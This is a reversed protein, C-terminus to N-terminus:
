RKKAAKPRSARAKKVRALREASTMKKAAAQGGMRGRIVAALDKEPVQPSESLGAAEQVVAFMRRNMDTPKPSKKM